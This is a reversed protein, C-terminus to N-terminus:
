FFGSLNLGAESSFIVESWLMWGWPEHDGQASPKHMQELSLSLCGGKWCWTRSRELSKPLALPQVSFEPHEPGLLHSSGMKISHLVQSGQDQM